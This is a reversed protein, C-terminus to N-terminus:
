RTVNILHDYANNGLLPCRGSETRMFRSQISVVSRCGTRHDQLKKSDCYGLPSPSCLLTANDCHTECGLKANDSLYRKCAEQLRANGVTEKSPFNPLFRDAVGSQAEQAEPTTHLASTQDLLSRLSSRIAIDYQIGVHLTISCESNEFSWFSPSISRCFEMKLLFPCVASFFSSQRADAAYM